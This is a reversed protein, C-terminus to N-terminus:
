FQVHVFIYSWKVITCGRSGGTWIEYDISFSMM